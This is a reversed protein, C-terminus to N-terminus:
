RGNLHGIWIYDIRCTGMVPSGDASFELKLQRLKGRVNLPLVYTRDDSDNAQVPFAVSAASSWGTSEDTLYALRMQSSSTHNNLRLVVTDCIGPVLNLDLGDALLLQAQTAERLALVYYDGCVLRVPESFSKWFADEAAIEERVTGLGSPKWGEDDLNHSFTWAKAVCSGKPLVHVATRATRWLQGDDAKLLVRYDGCTQFKATTRAAIPDAFVVGSPGEFEEWRCRLRGTQPLGDDSVEGRLDVCTEDTWVEEGAVVTPPDNLPFARNLEDSSAFVRNERVEWDAHTLTATNEYFSVGPNLVFGNGEILGNSCLVERSKSKGWVYIEAPGLKAAVNNRDFRSGRVHLNRVQPTRLGLIEIAAGANNRFTCAEVLANAGGAEFDIGGEDHSGSDPQNLFHCGRVVLGYNFALMIGMTGASANWGSADFVSDLLWARSTDTLYPHPSTNHCINDHCFLRSLWVDTGNVLFGASCQYSECDRFIVQRAHAGAIGLGANSGAGPAGRKDRWEPIGHANLRYLGEIHHALCREVLIGRCGATTCAIDLGKGACCVVLDRVALYSPDVIWVCRDDIDRTRRIIPRAGEGYAGIEAWNEASGRASLVLEENFVSGRRLLVREGPGLIKGRLRRFGKWASQPSLGDRSDDGGTADVYWTRMVTQPPVFGSLEPDKAPLLVIRRRESSLQENGSRLVFNVVFVGSTGPDAAFSVRCDAGPGVSGLSLRTPVISRGSIVKAELVVNSAAAGQNEVRALFEFPSGTRPLLERSRVDRIGLLSRRRNVVRVNEVRGKVRTGVSLAGPQSTPRGTRPVQAIQGNVQLRSSRGDWSASLRYVRGTEVGMPCSVRPEWVGDTKVFFCFGDKLDSGKRARDYRLLYEEPKYLITTEGTPLEDFVASAFIRLGPSLSADNNDAPAQGALFRLDRLEGPFHGMRLPAACEATPGRRSVRNTEGDVSLWLSTGDWGGALDHWVGATMPGSSSVRPEPSGGLNIFFSLRNGEAASDVRLFFGGRESTEGKSLLCFSSGAGIGPLRDIRARCSFSVGPMLDYTPDDGEYVVNEGAAIAVSALTGFIWALFFRM